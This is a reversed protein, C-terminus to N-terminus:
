EIEQLLRDPGKGMGRSPRRKLSCIKGAMNKINKLLKAIRLESARKIEEVIPTL